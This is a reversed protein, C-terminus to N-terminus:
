SRADPPHCFRGARALTVPVAAARERGGAQAQEHLLPLQGRFLGVRPGCLLWTFGRLFEFYNLEGQGLDKYLQVTISGTYGIADHLYIAFVATGAVKTSAMVREFLVAGYPVYALYAGTGILIMWWLGSIKEIDHLLTATAMLVIGTLMVGFVAILGYRHNRFLNLCALATMVGFAVPWDAQLFLEPSTRM